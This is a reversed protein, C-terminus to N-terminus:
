DYFQIVTGEVEKSGSGAECIQKKECVVVHLSAYAYHQLPENGRRPILKSPYILSCNVHCISYHVSRKPRPPYSYMGVGGIVVDVPLSCPNVPCCSAEPLSSCQFCDPDTSFGVCHVEVTSKM